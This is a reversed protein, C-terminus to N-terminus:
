RSVHNIIYCHISIAICLVTYKRIMKSKFKSAVINFSYMTDIVSMINGSMELLVDVLNHYFTELNELVGGVEEREKM